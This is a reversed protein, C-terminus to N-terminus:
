AASPDLLLLQARASARVTEALQSDNMVIRLDPTTLLGTLQAALDSPTYPNLVLARRVGYRTRFRQARFILRQAEATTPRRAALRIVHNETLRPNALLIVLVSPEPDRLMRDLLEPRRTRALSKREGLTVDPREPIAARRPTGDPPPQATLLLRVLLIDDRERAVTYIAAREDYSLHAAASGDLVDSLALLAVDYPTGSPARRVIEGALAAAREPPLARLEEALVTARM